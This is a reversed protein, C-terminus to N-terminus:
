DTFYEQLVPAIADVAVEHTQDALGRVEATSLLEGLAAAGNHVWQESAGGYLVLTPASLSTWRDTPLPNGSMLGDMIEGDYPMTNGIAEMGAFFPENRMEQVMEAPLFVTETLAYAVADGKGGDALIRKVEALYNDPRPPHTDDVIFPPEYIALKKIPLGAAAADLSLVGGSSLGLVYASGGAEEIVAALDEIEREKAYTDSDGSGGRGRREYTYVTHNGALKSGLEVSWPDIARYVFLGDVVVLPPGQGVKEFAITTGDKSTVTSM